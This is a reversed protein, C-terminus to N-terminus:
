PQTAPPVTGQGTGISTPGPAAAANAAGNNSALSRTVPQAGDLAPTALPSSPLQSFQDDIVVEVSAPIVGDERIGDPLLVQPRVTHTGPLLGTLDLVVFTDDPNLNNLLPLPGSLIVDVDTLAVTATLGPGLGRVVLQESVTVGGEIPTLNVSALVSDGEIASVGEPFILNLQRRLNGTAGDLSMAETEIVGPVQALVATEGLLVVTTPDSEVATLRYGDAPRGELKVKVSVEKRGPWQKVPVVVQVLAPEVIVSEVQRNQSDVAAVSVQREVQNKANRLFVDARTRTVLALQSEPGRVTVSIPNVLPQQWDYGFATGDMIEVQVPLERSIAQDLQIRLAPLQVDLVEVKPDVSTVRVPVEHMGPGLGTLDLVAQLDGVDLAEWSTRPARLTVQVTVDDLARVSQLDTALGIVTVPVPNGYSERILPNEQNLAVLWVVLALLIALVGTGVDTALLLQAEATPRTTRAPRKSETSM